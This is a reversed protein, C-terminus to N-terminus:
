FKADLCSAVRARDSEDPLATRMTCDTTTCRTLVRDHPYDVDMEFSRLATTGLIGDVEPQNPRLEARLAQLTANNDPIVLLELGAPPAIETLAPLACFRDGDECPCDDGVVCNRELLLHHAFVHRCPARPTSGSRAVMALNPITAIRGAIPGSSLFVTGMPLVELEPATPDVLRYRQYAAEGLLSPGVGTSILMLADTGRASQPLDPDPNAGLCTPMTIRRGSFGLETGSIVLTGGGRYPSPYVADCVDARSQEDGAVDALLSITDDGLRLRLADGALADAGIIAEYPRQLGATGVVCDEDDCPHLRVVRADSLEARPLDLTGTSRLGLLLLDDSTVTPAADLGPDILTIPSLADLVAIRDEGGERVGVIVAGSATDVKTPYLDGSFDNTVFSDTLLSCGGLLLLALQKM